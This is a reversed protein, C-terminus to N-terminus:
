DRPSPSTYLLCALSLRRSEDGIRLYCDGSKTTHMTDGPDIHVILVAKDDVDLRTIRARVPPLTFDIPAQRIANEARQSVGDVQGNSLGIALTGGEANAFAVLPRALDKAAVRGSKRDFWQDEDLSLLSTM